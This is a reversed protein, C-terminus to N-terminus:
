VDPGETIIYEIDAGPVCMKMKHGNIQVLPKLDQFTGLLLKKAKTLDPAHAIGVEGHMTLKEVRLSYTKM